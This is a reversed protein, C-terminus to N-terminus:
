YTACLNQRQKQKEKREGNFDLHLDTTGWYSNSDFTQKHGTPVGPPVQSTPSSAVADYLNCHDKLNRWWAPLLAAL